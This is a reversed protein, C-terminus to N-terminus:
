IAIWLCILELGYQSLILLKHYFVEACPPVVTIQNYSLNLETIDLYDEEKM